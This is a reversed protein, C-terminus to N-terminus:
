DLNVPYVVQIVKGDRMADFYPQPRSPNQLWRRAFYACLNALQTGVSYQPGVFCFNELLATSDYGDESKLFEAMFRPEISQDKGAVVMAFDAIPWESEMLQAENMNAMNLEDIFMNLAFLFRSIIPESPTQWMSVPNDSNSRVNAFEM